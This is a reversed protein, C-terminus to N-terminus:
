LQDDADVSDDNDSLVRLYRYLQETEFPKTLYYAAGAEWGDWVDQDGAKATLMIVPIHETAADSKLQRLVELGDVGPMMVDLVVIEPPSELIGALADVGNSYTRVAYGECELTMALM